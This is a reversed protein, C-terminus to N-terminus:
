DCTASCPARHRCASGSPPSYWPLQQFRCGTSCPVRRPCSAPQRLDAAAASSRWQTACPPPLRHWCSPQTLDARLAARRVALRMAPALAALLLAAGLRDSSAARETGQTQSACLWGSPASACHGKARLGAAAAPPPSRTFWSVASALSSAATVASTAAASSNVLLSASFPWKARVATCIASSAWGLISASRSASVRAYLQVGRWGNCGTAHTKFPLGRGAGRRLALRSLLSCLPTSHSSSLLSCGV